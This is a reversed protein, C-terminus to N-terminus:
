EPIKKDKLFYIIIIIASTIYENWGIKQADFLIEDLLNNLTVCFLFFIVFSPKSIQRIYLAMLFQTLAIGVYFIKSAIPEDFLPWITYVLITQIVLFKLLKNNKEIGQGEM